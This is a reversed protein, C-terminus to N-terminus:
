ECRSVELWPDLCICMRRQTIRYIDIFMRKQIDIFMRRQERWWCVNMQTYWYVNMETNEMWLLIKKISLFSHKNISIVCLLFNISVCITSLYVINFWYWGSDGVNAFVWRKTFGETICESFSINQCCREKKM